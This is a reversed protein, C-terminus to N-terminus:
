HEVQNRNPTEPQTAKEVPPMFAHESATLNPAPLDNVIGKELWTYEGMALLRNVRNIERDYNQGLAKFNAEIRDKAMRCFLDALDLPSYDDRNEHALREAYSLASSMAFLDTGIDVLRSMILQKKELKQQHRGMAHFIARALRKGSNAVYGLHRRNTSDLYQADGVGFRPLWQKPYWLAYHGAAKLGAKVKDSMSTRSDMLPMALRFHSDMAERAIFLKMIESSGEIIRNIRIDRMLREIPIPKEGRKALSTASEYGRGGRIQLAQDMVWWNAETAFLKAIAAELRIDAGGIDAMASTLWTVAETAFTIATIQALKEAVM